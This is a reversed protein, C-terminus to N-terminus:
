LFIQQQEPDFHQVNLEILRLAEDMSAVRRMDLSNVNEANRTLWSVIIEIEPAHQTKVDAFVYDLHQKIKQRNIEGTRVGMLKYRGAPNFLFLHVVSEEVAPLFLIREYREKAYHSRPHVDYQRNIPPDYLHILEYEKLLAQLESGTEIIEIDYLEDRIARRKSDLEQTNIFYSSLRRQVNKAKGVYIVQDSKDKMIYVGPSQIMERIFSQDFAYADFNIDDIEFLLFERLATNTEIHSNRLLEAMRIIQRKFSSFQAEADEAHYFDGLVKSLDTSSKILSDPFVKQAVRKLTFITRDVDPATHSLLRTFNSQQNGFGDFLLAANGIVGNVKESVALFAGPTVSFSITGDFLGDNFYALHIMFPDAFSLRQPFIMCAWFCLTEPTSEFKRVSWRGADTKHFHPHSHLLTDVLKDAVPSKANTMNLFRQAIEVASVPTQEEQLFREINNVIDPM